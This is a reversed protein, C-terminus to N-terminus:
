SGGWFAGGRRHGRNFRKGVYAAVVANAEDETMRRPIELLESDPRSSVAYLAAAVVKAEGDPDYATLTVEEGTSGANSGSQSVVSERELLRRAVDRTERRTDELYTSWLGGRESVDVRKLFAPIVKRLEILMLDAYDRVERLPHARMRLLLQEYAQGTGYIGVNSTTAAPLMGRLT